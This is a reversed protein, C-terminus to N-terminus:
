QMQEPVAMPAQLGATVKTSDLFTAPKGARALPAQMPAQARCAMPLVLTKSGSAGIPTTPHEFAPKSVKLPWRLLGQMAQGEQLAAM